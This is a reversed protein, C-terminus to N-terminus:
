RERYRRSREFKALDRGRYRRSLKDERNVAKTGRVWLGGAAEAVTGVHLKNFCSKKCSNKRNMLGRSASALLPVGGTLESSSSAPPTYTWAWQGTGKKVCSLGLETNVTGLFWRCITHLTMITRIM